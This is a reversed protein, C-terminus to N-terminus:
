VRGFKRTARIFHYIFFGDVVRLLLELGINFGTIYNPTKHVPNLLEFYQGGGEKFFSWSCHFDFGIICFYLLSHVIFLGLLPMVWNQGFDSVWRNLFVLIRNTWPINKLVRVEKWYLRMELRYFDLADIQNQNALAAAKLQRYVERDNKLNEGNEAKLERIEEKKYFLLNAELEICSFKTKPLWQVNSYRLGNLDSSDIKLTKTFRINNWIIQKHVVNKLSTNHLISNSMLWGGNNGILCDFTLQKVIVENFMLIGKLEQSYMRFSSITSYDEGNEKMPSDFKVQSFDGTNLVVSGFHGRCELENFSNLKMSGIEAVAEIDLCELEPCNIVIEDIKKSNRIEADSSVVNSLRLLQLEKNFDLEVFKSTISRLDISTYEGKNVILWRVTSDSVVFRSQMYFCCNDFRLGVEPNEFSLITLGRKFFCDKFSIQTISASNWEIKKFNLYIQEEYTKGEILGHEEDIWENFEESTIIKM